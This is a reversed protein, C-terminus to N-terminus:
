YADDDDDYNQELNEYINLIVTREMEINCSSNSAVISAATIIM